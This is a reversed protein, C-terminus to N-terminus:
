DAAPMNPFLVASGEETEVVEIGELEFDPDDAGQADLYATLQALMHMYSDEKRVRIATCNGDEVPNQLACLTYEGHAGCFSEMISRLGHDM